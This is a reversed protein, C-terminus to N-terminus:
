SSSRRPRAESRPDADNLMQAAWTRLVTAQSPTMTDLFLHRVASAHVALAAEITERGQESLGVGTRRGSAGAENRLVLHRREMRTLLHAVRSKDWRLASAVDGVRIEQGSARWLTVLVSFEGKSIGVRDQLAADIGTDLLRQVDTWVHWLEWEEASLPTSDM